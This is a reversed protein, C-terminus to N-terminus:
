NKNRFAADFFEQGAAYVPAGRSCFGLRFVCVDGPNLRGQAIMLKGQAMMIKPQSFILKPQAIM